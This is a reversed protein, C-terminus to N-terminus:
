LQTKYWPCAVVRRSEQLKGTEVVVHSCVLRAFDRCVERLRGWNKRGEWFRDYAQNARFALLLFLGVAFGNLAKDQILIYDDSCFTHVEKDNDSPEGCFSTYKGLLAIAINYMVILCLIERNSEPIWASLPPQWWHHTPEYTAQKRKERVEKEGSKLTHVGGIISNGVKKKLMHFSGHHGDSGRAKDDHQGADKAHSSDSTESHKEPAMTSATQLDEITTQFSHNRIQKQHHKGRGTRSSPINLICPAGPELKKEKRM